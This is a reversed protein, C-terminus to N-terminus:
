KETPIEIGLDGRAIMLGDAERIIEDANEIGEQNEIKAIIKIFRGNEGLIRRITRVGEANRIFSAFIM